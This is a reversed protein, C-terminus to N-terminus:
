CFQAKAWTITNLGPMWPRKEALMLRGAQIAATDPAFPSLGAAILDANIFRPCRAEEPLNAGISTGARLLQNALLRPVGKCEDLVQCLNVVRVSFAFAREGIEQPKDSM